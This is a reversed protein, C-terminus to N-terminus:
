LSALRYGVLRWVYSMELHNATMTYIFYQKNRFKWIGSLAIHIRVNSFCTFHNRNHISYFLNCFFYVFCFWMENLAVFKMWIEKESALIIPICWPIQIRIEDNSQYFNRSEILDLCSINQLSKMKKKNEYHCNIQISNLQATNVIWSHVNYM